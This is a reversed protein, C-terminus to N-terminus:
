LTLFEIESKMTRLSKIFPDPCLDIRPKKTCRKIDNM